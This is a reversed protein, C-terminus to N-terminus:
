DDSLFMVTCTYSGTVDITSNADITAASGSWNLYLDVPTATGDLPTQAATVVTAHTGTGSSLTITGTAAGFNVETSTLAGDGADAAVSGFGILFAADGAAGTLAAGEAFATWNHRSNLVHVVGEKFDFLKLSGSSGSGAADTVTLRAATFVFHLKYISEGIKEATMIASGSAPQAAQTGIGPVKDIYYAM